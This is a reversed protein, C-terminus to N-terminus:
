LYVLLQYVGDNPLWLQNKKPSGSATQLGRNDSVTNKGLVGTGATFVPCNPATMWVGGCGSQNVM